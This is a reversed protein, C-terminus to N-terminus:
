PTCAIIHSIPRSFPTRRLFQSSPTGAPLAHILAPLSHILVPLAHILSPHRPHRHNSLSLSPTM